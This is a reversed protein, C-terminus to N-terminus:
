SRRCVVTNSKYEPLLAAQRCHDTRGHVRMELGSGPRRHPACVMCFLLAICGFLPRVADREGDPVRYSISHYAIAGTVSVFIWNVLSAM